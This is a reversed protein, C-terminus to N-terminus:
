KTKSVSTHALYSLELHFPQPSAAPTQSGRGIMYEGAHFNYGNM